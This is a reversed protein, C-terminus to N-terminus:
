QYQDYQYPAAWPAFRNQILSSDYEVPRAQVVLNLLAQWHNVGRRRVSSAVGEAPQGGSTSSAREGAQYSGEYQLHRETVVNGGQAFHQTLHRERQEGDAGYQGQGQEHVVGAGDHGHTHGEGGSAHHEWEEACQKAPQTHEEGTAVGGGVRQEAVQLHDGGVLQTKVRGHHSSGVGSAAHHALHDAQLAECYGYGCGAHGARLFALQEAEGELVTHEQGTHQTRQRHQVR